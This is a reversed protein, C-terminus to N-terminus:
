KGTNAANTRFNDKEVTTSNIRSYISTRDREVSNYVQKYRRKVLKSMNTDVAHFAKFLYYFHIFDVVHNLNSVEFNNSIEQAAKLKTEDNAEKDVLLDIYSQFTQVQPVPSSTIATAGASNNSTSM